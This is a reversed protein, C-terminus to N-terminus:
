FYRNGIPFEKLAEKGVAKEGSYLLPKVFRLLRRLFSGVCKVRQMRFSTGYVPCNGEGSQNVYDRKYRDMTVSLGVNIASLDKKKLTINCSRFIVLKLCCM